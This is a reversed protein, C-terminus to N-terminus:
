KWKGIAFASMAWSSGNYLDVSTTSLNDWHMGPNSGSGTPTIVVAPNSSFAVPFTWTSNAAAHHTWCMQVGNFYRVYNSGISSIRELKQGFCQVEDTTFDAVFARDGGAQFIRFQNQYYDLSINPNGSYSSGSGPLLQIEGGETENVATIKLYKGVTVEGDITGGAATIIKKGKWLLDGNARGEFGSANTGDNAQIIFKGNYGEENAGSLRIYAGKSTQTGGLIVLRDNDVDRRLATNETMIGGTVPVFKALASALQNVKSADPSLGAAIIANRIEETISYFWYAGPVTAKQGTAQSGATPYNGSSSVTAPPTGVANAQYVRDM